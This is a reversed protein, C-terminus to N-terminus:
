VSGGACIQTYRRILADAYIRMQTGGFRNGHTDAESRKWVYAQLISTTHKYAHGCTHTYAHQKCTHMDALIRMHTYAHITCTHMYPAHICTHHTYARIYTYTTYAHGCMPTDAHRRTTQTDGQACIPAYAHGRTTVHWHRDQISVLTQTYAQIRPHTYYAHERLHSSAQLRTYVRIIHRPVCM